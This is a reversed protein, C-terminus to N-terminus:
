RATFSMPKFRNLAVRLFIREINSVQNVLIAARHNLNHAITQINGAKWVLVRHLQYFALNCPLLLPAFFLLLGQRPRCRMAVNCFCISYDWLMPRLM